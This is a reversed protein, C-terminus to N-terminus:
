DDRKLEEIGLRVFHTQPQQPAPKTRRGRARALALYFLRIALAALLLGVLSGAGFWEAM